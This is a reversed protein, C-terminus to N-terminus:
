ESMSAEHVAILHRKPRFPYLGDSYKIVLADFVDLSEDGDFGRRELGEAIENGLKDLVAKADDRTNLVGVIMQWLLMRAIDDRTPRRDALAQERVRIQRERQKANRQKKPKRAMTTEQQQLSGGLFPSKCVDNASSDAKWSFSDGMALESDRWPLNLHHPEIQASKGQHTPLTGQTGHVKGRCAFSALVPAGALPM